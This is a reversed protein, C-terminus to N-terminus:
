SCLYELLNSTSLLAGTLALPQAGEEAAREMDGGGEAPCPGVFPPRGALKCCGRFACALSNSSSARCPREDGHRGCFLGVVDGKESIDLAVPLEELAEDVERISQLQLRRGILATGCLDRQVIAPLENDAAIEAILASKDSASHADHARDDRELLFVRVADGDDEAITVDVLHAEGRLERKLLEIIRAELTHGPRIPYGLRLADRGEHKETPLLDRSAEISNDITQAPHELLRHTGISLKLTSPCLQCQQATLSADRANLLLRAYPVHLPAGATRAVAVVAYTFTPEHALEELETLQRDDDAGRQEHVATDDGWATDGEALYWVNLAINLIHVFPDVLKISPVVRLKLVPDLPWVPLVVLLDVQKARATSVLQHVIDYRAWSRGDHECLMQRGGPHGLRKILVQRASEVGRADISNADPM